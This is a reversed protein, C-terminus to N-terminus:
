VSLAREPPTDSSGEHAAGRQETMARVLILAFVASLALFGVPIGTLKTLSRAVFPIFWAIALLTKEWRLFGHELGYAVLFTIAMGFSIFDYDLVYPSSLLAGVLPVACKLRYSAGSWWTWM